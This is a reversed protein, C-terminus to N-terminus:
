ASVTRTAGYDLRNEGARPLNEMVDLFWDRDHHLRVMATRLGPPFHDRVLPTAM